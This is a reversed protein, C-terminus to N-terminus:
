FAAAAAARGLANALSGAPLEQSIIGCLVLGEQLLERVLVLVAQCLCLLRLLMRRLLLAGRRLQFLPLLLLLLLQVLARRRPLLLGALCRLLLRALLLMLLCALLLRLLVCVADKRLLRALHLLLGLRRACRQAGVICCAVLECLLYVM